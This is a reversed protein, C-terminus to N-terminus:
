MNKTCSSFKATRNIDGSQTLIHIDFSGEFLKLDLNFDFYIQENALELSCQSYIYFKGSYGRIENEDTSCFTVKHGGRIFPEEITRSYIRELSNRFTGDGNPIKKIYDITSIQNNRQEVVIQSSPWTPPKLNDEIDCTITAAVSLISNLLISLTVIFFKM